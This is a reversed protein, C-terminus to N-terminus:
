QLLCCNCNNQSSSSETRPNILRSTESLNEILNVGSQESSNEFSKEYSIDFVNESCNESLNKIVFTKRYGYGEAFKSDSESPLDPFYFLDVFNKRYYPDRREALEMENETLKPLFYSFIVQNREKGLRLDEIFSELDDNVSDKEDKEGKCFKEMTEKTIIKRREMYISTMMVSKIEYKENMEQLEKIEQLIFSKLKDESYYCGAYIFHTKLEQAENIIIKRLASRIARIDYEEKHDM